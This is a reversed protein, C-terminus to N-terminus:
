NRLLYGRGRQTQIIAPSIGSKKVKDRVRQVLKAIAWPSFKEYSNQKWIIEAIEELSCLRNENEILFKLAMGENFSFKEVPPKKDIFIRNDKTTFIKATSIRLRKLYKQSELALEAKEKARIGQLTPKYGSFLNAMKSFSLTFDIVAEREEWDYGDEKLIKTFISSLIAEAVHSVPMDVRIYIKIKVKKKELDVLNFSALSGFSTPRIELDFEKESLFPFLDFFVKWFRKETKTWDLKLKKIKKEEFKMKEKKVLVMVQRKITQDIPMPIDLDSKKIKMWFGPIKGFSLEPLYISKIGGNVRRPLVLFGYKQYFRNITQTIAQTIRDAETEVSYHWCTTPTTM